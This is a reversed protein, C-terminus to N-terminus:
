RGFVLGFGVRITNKDWVGGVHTPLWDFQVLRVSMKDNAVMDVGGGFGMTFGTVSTLGNGATLGGALAHAFLTTKEQRLHFRPGGLYQYFHGDRYNGAFDGVIGLTSNINETVGGQWGPAQVRDVAKGSLISFGGFFQTQPADDAAFVSFQSLAVAVVMGVLMRKM